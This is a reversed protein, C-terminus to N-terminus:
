KRSYSKKLSAAFSSSSKSSSSRSAAVAVRNRPRLPDKGRASSALAATVRSGVRRKKSTNKGSISTNDALSHALQDRCSPPQMEFRPTLPPSMDLIPYKEGDEYSSSRSRSMSSSYISPSHPGELAYASPRMSGLVEPLRTNHAAVKEKKSSALSGVRRAGAKEFASRTDNAIAEPSFFMANRVQFHRPRTLIGYRESGEGPPKQKPEQGGGSALVLDVDQREAATLPAAGEKLYYLMLMGERYKEESQESSAAGGKGGEGEHDKIMVPHTWHYRKRRDETDDALLNEFSANDESTYTSFFDNLSLRELDTPAMQEPERRSSDDGAAQAGAVEGRSSTGGGQKPTPHAPVRGHGLRALDAQLAATSPYYDREIIYELASVYADESLITRHSRSRTRKSSNKM